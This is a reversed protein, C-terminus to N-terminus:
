IPETLDNFSKRAVTASASVSLRLDRCVNNSVHISPGYVPSIQVLQIRWFTCFKSSKSLFDLKKFGNEVFASVGNQLRERNNFCTNKHYVILKKVIIKQHEM